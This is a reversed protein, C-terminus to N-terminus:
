PLTRENETDRIADENIERVRSVVSRCDEGATRVGEVWAILARDDPVAAPPPPEPQCRTLAEPLVTRVVMRQPADACSVLIVVSLLLLLAHLLHHLLM